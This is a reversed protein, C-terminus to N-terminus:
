LEVTYLFDAKFVIHPTVHTIVYCNVQVTLEMEQTVLMAIVDEAVM